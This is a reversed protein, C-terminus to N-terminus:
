NGIIHHGLIACFASFNSWPRLSDTTNEQSM